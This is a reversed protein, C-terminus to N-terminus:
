LLWQGEDRTVTGRAILKQGLYRAKLDSIGANEFAKFDGARIAIPINTDSRFNPTASLFHMQRRQAFKVEVVVCEVSAPQNAFTGVTQPTVIPPQGEEGIAATQLGLFIAMLCLLALQNRATRMAEMLRTIM